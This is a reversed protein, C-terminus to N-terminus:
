FWLWIFVTWINIYRLTSALV